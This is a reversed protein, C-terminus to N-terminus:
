DHLLWTLHCDSDIRLDSLDGVGIRRLICHSDTLCRLVEVVIEVCWIDILRVAVERVIEGYPLRNQSDIRFGLLRALQVVDGSLNGLRIQNGDIWIGSDCHFFGHNCLHNGTWLSEDHRLALDNQWIDSWVIDGLVILIDDDILTLVLVIERPTTHYHCDYRLCLLWWLITLVLPKLSWRRRQQQRRRRRRENPRENTRENM